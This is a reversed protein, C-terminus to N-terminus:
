TAMLQISSRRKQLAAGSGLSSSKRMAAALQAQGDDLFQSLTARGLRLRLRRRGAHVLVLVLLLHHRHQHDFDVQDLRHHDLFHQLQQAALDIDDAVAVAHGGSACHGLGVVVQHERVAM